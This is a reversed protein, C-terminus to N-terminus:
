TGAAAHTHKASRVFCVWGCLLAAQTLSRELIGCTVRHANKAKPLATCKLSRAGINASRTVMMACFPALYRAAAPLVLWRRPCGRLTHLTIAPLLSDPM